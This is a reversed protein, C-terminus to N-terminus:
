PKWPDSGILARWPNPGEILAKLSDPNQKIQCVADDWGFSATLRTHDAYWAEFEKWAANETVDPDAEVRYAIYLKQLLDIGIPEM